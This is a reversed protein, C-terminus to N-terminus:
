VMRSWEVWVATLLLPYSFACFPDIQGVAHLRICHGAYFCRRQKADMGEGYIVDGQQRITVFKETFIREEEPKWFLEETNLQESKLINKM